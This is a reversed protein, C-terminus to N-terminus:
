TRQGARRDPSPASLEKEMWVCALRYGNRLVVDSRERVRYGHSTYFAEANLSATVALRTLGHETALREIESVLASGCGRRAASPLVYCARLEAGEVVLAGIGAPEGDVEAILRIEKDANLALDRLTEDTIAPSWGNIADPPYHTVALGRVSNAVIELYLRLEDPQLPRVVVASRAPLSPDNV